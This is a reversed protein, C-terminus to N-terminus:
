RYSSFLGMKMSLLRMFVYDLMAHEQKNFNETLQQSVSM